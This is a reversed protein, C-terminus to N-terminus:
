GRPAVLQVRLVVGDQILNDPKGPYVVGFDARNISFEARASVETAGVTVTAPFTVDRSVGRLTLVGKVTHTAGGEGGPTIMTSHFSAEPFQDVSFFDETKLHGTLKESDTTVSGTRVRATVNVFQEGDLGLEGDFDAFNLDHSGTVKAGTAAGSSRAKDVALGVAPSPAPAAPKETVAPGVTAAPKDQTVDGTCSFLSLAFILM